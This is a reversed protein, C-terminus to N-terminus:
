QNYQVQQMMMQRRYGRVDEDGIIMDSFISAQGNVKLEASFTSNGAANRATCTYMGTHGYGVSEIMILSARKGMPSTVIGDAM